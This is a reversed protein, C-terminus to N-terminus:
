KRAKTIGSRDNVAEAVKKKQEPDNNDRIEEEAHRQAM